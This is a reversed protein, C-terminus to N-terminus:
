KSFVFSVLGASNRLTMGVVGEDLEQCERGAPMGYHRWEEKSDIDVNDLGDQQSVDSGDCSDLDGDVNGTGMCTCELMEHTGCDTDADFSFIDRLDDQSFANTVQQANDIVSDSLSVKTLQRQYIREEITGTTLLRYITVNSKQGDRWIRAMAQQDVSPNWDIDYMILRSAGTLNLGVGGAKSSLLFVFTTSSNFADVIEQRKQQPTQGDLRVFSYRASQCVTEFVDLTATWNSVLVVKSGQKLHIAALLQKLVILKGSEMRDIAAKKFSPCLDLVLDNDSVLQPSNVCKRLLTMLPLILSGRNRSDGIDDLCERASPSDIILRYLDAQPPSMRCFLAVQSKGPLYQANTDATRRLVFQKTIQILLSMQNEGYIREEDTCGHVRSRLIPAEMNRKFESPSGLLGPNVFDVMAYFESLDNQIPTGSLIIRRTTSFTNLITSSQISSNKLRHGEDCVIMDFKSNCLTQQFSRMREYGIILVSYVRGISFDSIDSKTGQVAYVRIRQDGLWKKFEKKWNGVLSAPCVILVRKMTPKGVFPTQKLLTWIVSITQITKGLGMEDALIAGQGAHGRMGMMSEYLFQVGERQHPRLKSSLLPDVVVDIIDPQDLMPSPRPMVLANPALPDHRPGNKPPAPPPQVGDILHPKFKTMTPMVPIHLGTDANQYKSHQLSQQKVDSVSIRELIEIEKQGIRMVVGVDLDITKRGSAILDGTENNLKISGDLVHLTGDGDWSRHVKNTQKRYVVSFYEASTNINKTTAAVVSQALGTGRHIHISNTASPAPKVGTTLTRKLAKKPLQCVTTASPTISPICSEITVLKRKSPAQSRRM